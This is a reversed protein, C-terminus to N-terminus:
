GSSRAGKVRPKKKIAPWKQERWAAIAPENRQTAREIPKQVSWGVARLLRGVHDPHYAVGFERKIVAAVRARTWIDGRFGWAEAGRTLLAPIGRRQTATLRVPAGPSKRNRLAAVGGARGRAMWQSVAGPTVGLAVAIDKQKWGQQHLEWARLRRGERWDTPQQLTGMLRLLLM